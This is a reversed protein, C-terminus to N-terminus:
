TGSNEPLSNDGLVIIIDGTVIFGPDGEVIKIEEEFVNQISEVTYEFKELDQVYITTKSHNVNTDGTRIVDVGLNKLWRSRFGALGFSSTSNFVEVRAQEKEIALDAFIERIDLDLEEILAVQLKKDGVKKEGVSTKGMFSRKIERTKLFAYGTRMMESKSMNSVIADELVDLSKPMDIFVRYSSLRKIFGEVGYSQRMLRNDKGDDDAQLFGLFDEGGLRFEGKDLTYFKGGQIIDEDSFKKPNNVHIGGLADSLEVVGEEDIVIYRNLNVSLLKEIDKSFASIPYEEGKLIFRNYLDKIKVYKSFDDSFIYLETNIQFLGVMKKSPDIMLMTLADVFAYNDKRKDLGIMLVTLRDHGKWEAYEVEENREISPKFDIIKYIFMGGWILIMLILLFVILSLIGSTRPLALKLRNKSGRTLRSSKFSFGRKKRTSLKRSFLKRKIITRVKNIM